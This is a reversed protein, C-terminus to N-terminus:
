SKMGSFPSIMNCRFTWIWQVPDCRLLAIYLGFSLLNSCRYSGVIMKPRYEIRIEAQFCVTRGSINRPTGWDRCAFAPIISQVPWSRNRGFGKRDIACGDEKSDFSYVGLRRCERWIFSFYSCYFQRLHGWTRSINVYSWHEDEWMWAVTLRVPVIVAVTMPEAM